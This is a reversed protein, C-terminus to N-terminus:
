ESVLCMFRPQLPFQSSGPLDQKGFDTVLEQIGSLFIHRNGNGSYFFISERKGFFM